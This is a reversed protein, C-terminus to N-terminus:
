INTNNELLSYLSIGTYMAYNEDTAYLINLEM